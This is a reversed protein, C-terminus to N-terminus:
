LLYIPLVDYDFKKNPKKPAAQATVTSEKPTASAAAKAKTATKTKATAKKTEM